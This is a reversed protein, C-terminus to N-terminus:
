AGNATNTATGQAADREQKAQQAQRIKEINDQILRATDPMTYKIGDALVQLAVDIMGIQFLIDGFNQIFGLMFQQREESSAVGGPKVVVDITFDIKKLVDWEVKVMEREFIPKIWADDPPIVLMMKMLARSLNAISPKLRTMKYTLQSMNQAVMSQQQVGSRVGSQKSGELARHVASTTQALSMDLGILQFLSSPLEQAPLLGFDKNFLADDPITIPLRPDNNLKLDEVFSETGWWSHNAFLRGNDIAQNITSDLIKNHDILLRVYSPGKHYLPHGMLEFEWLPPGQIGYKTYFISADDMVLIRDGIICTQRWGGEFKPKMGEKEPPIVDMIGDTMNIHLTLAEIASQLRSREATDSIKPVSMTTGYIDPVSVMEGLMAELDDLQQVHDVLHRSHYQYEDFYMEGDVLMEIEAEDVTGDVLRYILTREHDIIRQDQERNTEVLTTDLKWRETVSVADNDVVAEQNGYGPIDGKGGYIGVSAKSGGDGDANGKGGPLKKIDEAYEPYQAILHQKSVYRCIIVEDAEEFREGPTCFVQWPHYSVLDVMPEPFRKAYDVCVGIYHCDFIAVSKVMKHMHLHWDVLDKIAEFGANGMRTLIDATYGEEALPTSDQEIKPVYRVALDDGNLAAVLAEVKDTVLPFHYQAQASGRKEESTKANSGFVVKPDSMYYGFNEKADERWQSRAADYSDMLSNFEQVLNATKEERSKKAM